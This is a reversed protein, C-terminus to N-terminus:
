HDAPTFDVLGNLEQATEFNNNSYPHGHTGLTTQIDEHGPYEKIILPNEGISILLSAHSHRLAHVRM